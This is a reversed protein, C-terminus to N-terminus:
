GDSRWKMIKSKQAAQKKRKSEQPSENAMMWDVFLRTKLDNDLGQYWL